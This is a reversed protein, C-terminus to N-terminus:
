KTTATSCRSKPLSTPCWCFATASTSTAPFKFGEIPGLKVPEGGLLPGWFMRHMEMDTANIHHHGMAVPADKAATLQASAPMVAVVAAICFLLIRLM